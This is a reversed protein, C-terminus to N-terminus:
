DKQHLSIGDHTLPVQSSARIAKASEQLQMHLAISEPTTLPGLCYPCFLEPEPKTEQAPCENAVPIVGEAICSEGLDPGGPWACPRPRWAVRGDGRAKYSVGPSQRRLTRLVPRGAPRVAFVAAMARARKGAAGGSPARVPVPILMRTDCAADSGTDHRISDLAPDAPPSATSSACSSLTASRSRAVAPFM